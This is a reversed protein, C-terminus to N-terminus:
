FNLNLKHILTKNQICEESYKIKKFASKNDGKIACYIYQMNINFKRKHKPKLQVMM